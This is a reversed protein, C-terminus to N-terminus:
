ITTPDIGQRIAEEVNRQADREVEERTRYDNPIEGRHTPLVALDLEVTSAQDYDFDAFHSINFLRPNIRNWDLAMVFGYPPYTIESVHLSRDSLVNDLTTEETVRYAEMLPLYRLQGTHNFYTFFRVGEPLGKAEKDLLLRALEAGVPETRFREPNVAMFMAVVAKIIRLPYVNRASFTAADLGIEEMQRLVYGGGWYWENLSPVYWRGFKNNCRGCLSPYRIGGQRKPGQPIEDMGIRISQEFTLEIYTNKNPVAKPPVHEETLGAYTGCVHCIGYITKRGM